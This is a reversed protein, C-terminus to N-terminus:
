PLREAAYKDPGTARRRGQLVEGLAKRRQSALQPMVGDTRMGVRGAWNEFPQGLHLVTWPLRVKCDDPWLNQFNSDAGGAHKWDVEHWPAEPLHSDDAHFIQTYGPFEFDRYTSLQNWQHEPPATLHVHPWVHRYPNYLFGQTNFQAYDVLNPWLIDADMICLWGERGFSDLAEELAKWKNFLAGDDYFTQTLHLRSKMHRAVRQTEEDQPTTVVMVEEFHHRNHPLTLALIDGYDVSVLIARM